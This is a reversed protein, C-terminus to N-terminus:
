DYVHADDEFAACMRETGMADELGRTRHRLASPLEVVRRHRELVFNEAVDLRQVDVGRRELLNEVFAAAILGLDRRVDGTDNALAALLM